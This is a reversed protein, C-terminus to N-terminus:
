LHCRPWREKIMYISDIGVYQDHIARIQICSDDAVPVDFHFINTYKGMVNRKIHLPSQLSSLEAPMSEKVKDWDCNLKLCGDLFFADGSHGSFMSASAVPIKINAVTLNTLCGGLSIGCISILKLDLDYLHYAMAKVEEICMSGMCIFSNIDPMIHGLKLGEKRRSGYLPLEWIFSAVGMQALPVAVENFRKEYGEQGTAPINIAIPTNPKLSKLVSDFDESCSLDAM